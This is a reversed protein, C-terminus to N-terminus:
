LSLEKKNLFNYTEKKLQKINQNMKHKESDIDNIQKPYKRGCFEILENTITYVSYEKDTLPRLMENKIVKSPMINMNKDYLILGDRNVVIIDKSVNRKFLDINKPLNQIVEKSHELNSFRGVGIKELQDYYRKYISITSLEVPCTVVYLDIYKYQNVKLQNYTSELTKYARGTGHIIINYGYKACYNIISNCVESSFENTYKSSEKGYKENYEHYKPHFVRYEDADINIFQNFRRISVSKGAAPQGALIKAKYGIVPYNNEINIIIQNVAKEVDLIKYDM